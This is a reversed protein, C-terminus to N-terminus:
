KKEGFVRQLDEEKYGWKSAMEKAKDSIKPMKGKPPTAVPPTITGPIDTPVNGALPNTKTGSKKRYVNTVANKVLWDANFQPPLNRNVQGFNKQIEEVVEKGLAEDKFLTDNDMIQAASNIVQENFAMGAKERETLVENIVQKPDELMMQGYDVPEGTPKIAGIKDDIQQGIRQLLDTDRRGMWSQMKQTSKEAAAEIIQEPTLPATETTEQTEETTEETTEQTEGAVKEQGEEQSTETTDTTEEAM